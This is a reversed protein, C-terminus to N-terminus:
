QRNRRITPRCSAGKQGAGFTRHTPPRARTRVDARPTRPWRRCRRVTYPPRLRTGAGNGGPSGAHGDHAVTRAPPRGTQDVRSAETPVPERHSPTRAPEETPAAAQNAPTPVDERHMPAQAPNNAPVPRARHATLAKITDRMTRGMRAASNRLRDTVESGAEPMMARRFREMAANHAGVAQAALMQEIPDSPSFATPELDPIPTM